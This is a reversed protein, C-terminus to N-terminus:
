GDMCVVRKQGSIVSFRWNTKETGCIGLVFDKDSSISFNPWCITKFSKFLIEYDIRGRNRDDLINIDSLFIQYDLPGGRFKGGVNNAIYGAIGNGFVVFIDIIEEARFFVM